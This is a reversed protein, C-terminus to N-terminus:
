FRGNLVCVLRNIVGYLGLWPTMLWLMILVTAEIGKTIELGRQYAMDEILSKFWENTNKFMETM